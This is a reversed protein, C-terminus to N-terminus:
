SCISKRSRSITVRRPSNYLASRAKVKASSCFSSMWPVTSRATVCSQASAPRERRKVTSTDDGAAGAIRAVSSRARPSCSNAVRNVASVAYMTVNKWTSGSHTTSKLLGM